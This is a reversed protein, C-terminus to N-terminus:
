RGHLRAHCPECVALLDGPRERGLRDYTVHHVDVARATCGPTQCRRAAARLVRARRRRWGPSAMVARYRASHGGRGGSPAPFVGRAGGSVRDRLWLLAGGALAALVALHAGQVVWLALLLLAATTLVLPLAVASLIPHPGLAWAAVAHVLEPSV